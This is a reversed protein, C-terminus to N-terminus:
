PQQEEDGTMIGEAVEPAERIIRPPARCNKMCRTGQARPHPPKMFGERNPMRVGPLTAASAVFDDDVVGNLNLLFAVLAYVERPALSFAHGEPMARYIYDFVTPAFPWYSGITRQPEDSALSGEGGMLAPMRGMGEGFAGHCGACLRAYLAEGQAVSGKGPPLGAGDFRVDRDIAAIDPPLLPAGIGAAEEAARALGALAAASFILVMLVRWTDAWGYM